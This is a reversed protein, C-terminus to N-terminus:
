GSQSLALAERVMQSAYGWENDYWSMIKVLDRDVVQTLSLDVISAYVQQIVDSSVIPDETVALVERYRESAAEEKFVRNVEEVSTSRETVFVIDALSGLPVPVRVALGDFKGKYAPLARTTAIAAGTSAPILNAAAARGRRFDKKGSDVVSQTSTYAHITTMTAKKIGIRRGMIEVVPTICNTTCSACSIIDAPKGEPSNVAHVVTPVDDGKAPASLIVFRAGAEIHKVLDERRRFIGTCEFVLDVGMERWPLTFPDKASLVAYEKGDINLCADHATVAKFWRGYVTDFKLLYALGDSPILDNVAVLNLAPKDLLIKLTARGIRGLGNIAVNFM